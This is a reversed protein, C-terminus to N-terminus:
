QSNEIAKCVKKKVITEENVENNNLKIKKVRVRQQPHPHPVIVEDFSEEESPANVDPLSPCYLEEETSKDDDYDFNAAIKRIDAHIEASRYLEEDTFKCVTKKALNPKCSTRAIKVRKAHM